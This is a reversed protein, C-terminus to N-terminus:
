QGGKQLIKKYKQYKQRKEDSVYMKDKHWYYTRERYDEGGFDEGYFNPHKRIRKALTGRM